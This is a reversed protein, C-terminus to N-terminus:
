GASALRRANSRSLPIERRIESGSKPDRGVQRVPGGDSNDAVRDPQSEPVCKEM